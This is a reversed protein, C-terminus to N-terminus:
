RKPFPRGRYNDIFYRKVLKPNDIIKYFEEIYKVNRKRVKEPLLDFDRLLAIIEQKKEKFIVFIKNFQKEEKCFGRYFRERVSKIPFEENPRAYHADILGVLDFDFPVPFYKGPQSDFTILKTNHQSRISWDTNGVMYEFVSVLTSSDYDAQPLTITLDDPTKKGDNRKAMKKTREIFFGYGSFSDKKKMSDVYTMHVLRVRYSLPTLLSYMKYVLYEQLYYHQFFDPSNKCHGVFKLEKEKRFITGKTQVGNFKMKFNHVMCGLMERRLKGRAIIEVDMTVTEGKHDTYSLKAPHYTRKSGRDKRFGLVDYELTAELVEQAKFIKPPKPAKPEGVAKSAQEQPQQATLLSFVLCIM